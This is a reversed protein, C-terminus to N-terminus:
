ASDLETEEKDKASDTQKSSESFAESPLTLVTILSEDDESVLSPPQSTEM